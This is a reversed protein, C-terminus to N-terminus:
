KYKEGEKLIFQFLNPKLIKITQLEHIKEKFTKYNIIGDKLLEILLIESTKVQIGYIIGNNLALKDDTLLPSKEIEALTISKLGGQGLNKSTRINKITKNKIKKSTINKEIFKAESYKKLDQLVEKKVAESIIINKFAKIITEKLSIKTIYILSCADIVLKEM